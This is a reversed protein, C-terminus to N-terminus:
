YKMMPMVYMVKLLITHFMDTATSNLENTYGELYDSSSINSGGELLVSLDDQIAYALGLGGSFVPAISFDGANENNSLQQNQIPQIMLIGMGAYIRPELRKKWKKPPYRKFRIVYQGRVSLEVLNSKYAYGRAENSTGEDTGWTRHFGVMGGLRWSPHLDLLAGGQFTIGPSGGGVDFYSLNIGAGAEIHTHPKFRGQGSMAISLWLLLFLTILNFRKAGM